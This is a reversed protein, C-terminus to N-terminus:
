FKYIAALEVSASTFGFAPSWSGDIRQTGILGFDGSVQWKDNFSYRLSPVFGLEMLGLGGGGVWMDAEAKVDVFLKSNNWCNFRGYPVINGYATNDFVGLGLGLGVAWRDNIEYGAGPKLVLQFEDSLYGLGATGSVFWQASANMSCVLAFLLMMRKM